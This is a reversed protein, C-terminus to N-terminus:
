LRDLVVGAQMWTADSFRRPRRRGNRWNHEQCVQVATLVLAFLTCLGTFVALLGEVLTAWGRTGSQNQVGPVTMKM